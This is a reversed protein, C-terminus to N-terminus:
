ASYRNIAEAGGYGLLGGALMPFLAPGLSPYRGEDNGFSHQALGGVLLAGLGAALLPNIETKPVSNEGTQPSRPRPRNLGIPKQQGSSAEFGPLLEENKRRQEERNASNMAYALAGAGTLGGATIIKSLISSGESKDTTEATQNAGTAQVANAPQATDAPQANNALQAANAAQVVDAPNDAKAPQAAKAPNDANALQAANAAQVVDAPNDAKAVDSLSKLVPNLRDPDLTRLAAISEFSLGMDTLKYGIEVQRNNLKTTQETVQSHIDDISKTIRELEQALSLVKKSEETGLKNTQLIEKLKNSDRAAKPNIGLAQLEHNIETKRDLFKALKKRARDKLDNMANETHALEQILPLAREVKRINLNNTQLIEKLKNSDRAAEPNRTLDLIVDTIKDATTRNPSVPIPQRGQNSTSSVSRKPIAVEAPGSAAAPAAAPAATSRTSPPMGSPERRFWKLVNRLFDGPGATKIMSDNHLLERAIKDEYYSALILPFVLEPKM